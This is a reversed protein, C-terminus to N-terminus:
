RSRENEFAEAIGVVIAGIVFFAVLILGIYFWIM